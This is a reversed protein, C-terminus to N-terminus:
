PIVAVVEVEVLGDPNALATVAVFTSAPPAVGAFFGDRVARVIAVDEAGKFGVVFITAKVVDKPGAGAAALATKINRYVQETQAKLDGKGVVEGKANVAIQGAVYVTRGGTAVVVHSYGRPTQLDKPNIREIKVNETASTRSALPASSLVAVGVAAERRSLRKTTKM